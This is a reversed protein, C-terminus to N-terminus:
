HVGSVAQPAQQRKQIGEAPRDTATHQALTDIHRRFITKFTAITHNGSVTFVRQAPLITAFLPPGDAALMDNKGYGLYIPPATAIGEAYDKIWSWLMWEWDNVDDTTAPWATIGGARRIQRHLPSWGLFPSTLLVGDVDEPHSRVYLLSGLGGMSFGALWIQEYGQRRAPDIIDEKLRDNFTRTRYYGFHSDPAVIDFPLGRTRIEEIIGEEAFVTNDAGLGRLLILLHRQRAGDTLPYSVVPMPATAAAICGGLLVMLLAVSVRRWNGPFLSVLAVTAACRGSLSCAVSLSGPYATPEQAAVWALEAAAAEKEGKIPLYYKGRAWRPLLWNSGKAVAKRMYEDGREKSGGRSEPLAVYCIVKGFEVGGGGFDPAVAEIRDFFVLARQLWDINTIKAPLSMGEKFEYQLATAWFFMAEVEREGLADAAEWPQKGSDVQQKFLPNTYMALEAYKMAQRFAKTKASSSKTYATGKLIYLTAAKVRAQYHGPNDRLVEEYLGICRDVAAGDGATEFCEDAARYLGDTRVSPRDLGAEQWPAEWRLACGGFVLSLLLILLLMISRNM